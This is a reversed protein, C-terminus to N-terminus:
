GNPPSPRRAAEGSEALGNGPVRLFLEAGEAHLREGEHPAIERRGARAVGLEAAEREAPLLILKAANVETRRRGM